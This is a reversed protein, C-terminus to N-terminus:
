KWNRPDILNIDNIRFNIMKNKNVTKFNIVENLNELNNIGVIIKDFDHSLLDTLCYDVPSINSKELKKFWESIKKNWKNFYKTKYISKNVLLGQLFISRVHTEVGKKKLKKLWGSNILRKDLVNYPCQIIDVNYNSTLFKLSKIDYISLGIKFFFKKKLSEINEFIKKGKNTFLIDVNHFLFASFKNRNFKKSHNSIKERCYDLSIWKEDPKMKTIVEFKKDINKFLNDNNLYSEATDITYINNKKLFNFIKKKETNNIKIQEVGYNNSFNASGIVLRKKFQIKNM